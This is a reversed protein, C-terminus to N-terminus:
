EVVKWKAMNEESTIDAHYGIGDDICILCGYDDLFYHNRYNVENTVTNGKLMEQMAEKFTLSYEKVIEITSDNFRLHTGDWEGDKYRCMLKNNSLKYSVGLSDCVVKGDLLAQMVERANM